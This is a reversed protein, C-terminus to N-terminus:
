SRNKTTECPNFSRLRGFAVHPIGSSGRCKAQAHGAEPSKAMLPDLLAASARRVGRAYTDGDVLACFLCLPFVPQGKARMDLLAILNLEPFLRGRPTVRDDIFAFTGLIPCGCFTLDGRATLFLAYEPLRLLSRVAIKSDAHDDMIAVDGKFEVVIKSQIWALSGGLTRALRMSDLDSIGPLKETLGLILSIHVYCYDRWAIAGNRRKQEPYGLM